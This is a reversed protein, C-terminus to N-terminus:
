FGYWGADFHIYQLHRKVAFDVLEKSGKMSLTMERMIKGPQIWSTNRIECPPNLNLLLDNNALLDGAHEAMMVVRWPTAFPTFLDVRDYM